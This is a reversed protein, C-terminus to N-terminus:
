ALKLTDELRKVLDHAEQHDLAEKADKSVPVQWDFSTRPPRAHTLEYPSMGTSAHPLILQAHDILPM